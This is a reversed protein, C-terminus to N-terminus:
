LKNRIFNLVSIALPLNHADKKNMGHLLDPKTSAGWPLCGHGSKLEMIVMPLESSLSSIPHPFHLLLRPQRRHM